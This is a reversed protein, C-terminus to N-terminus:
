PRPEDTTVHKEDFFHITGGDIEIPARGCHCFFVEKDRGVSGVELGFTM